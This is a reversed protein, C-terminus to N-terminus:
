LSLCVCLSDSVKSHVFHLIPILCISLVLVERMGDVFKLKPKKNWTGERKICVYM